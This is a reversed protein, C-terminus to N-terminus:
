GKFYFFQEIYDYVNGIRSGFEHVGIWYLMWIYLGVRNIILRYKIFIEVFTRHTAHEHGSWDWILIM